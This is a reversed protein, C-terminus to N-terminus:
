PKRKKETKPVIALADKADSAAQKAKDIAKGVATRESASKPKFKELLPITDHTFKALDEISNRVDLKRSYADDINTMVEDLAQIYGGFLEAPTFNDLYSSEDLPAKDANARSDTTNKRAEKVRKEREKREQEKAQATKEMVGLFV